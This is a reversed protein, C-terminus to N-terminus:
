GASMELTLRACLEHKAKAVVDPSLLLSLLTRAMAKSSILLCHLGSESAALERFLPKHGSIKRDSLLTGFMNIGLIVRSVNGSDESGQDPPMGDMCPEGLARLESRLVDGIVANPIRGLYGVQERFSFNCGTAIAAGEAANRVVQRSRELHATVPTTAEVELEAFSPIDIIESKIDKIVECIHLDDPLQQRILGTAVHFLMAADMANIGQDPYSEAQAPEGEFTVFYSSSSCCTGGIRTIASTPHMLLIADVGDFAGKNLMRGLRPVQAGGGLVHGGHADGVM